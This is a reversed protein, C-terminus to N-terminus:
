GRGSVVVSSAKFVLHVASQPRLGLEETSYRTLEVTMPFGVDVTALVVDSSTSLSDVRGPLVNRASSLSPEGVALILESARISVAVNSGVVADLRPTYLSVSGVSVRDPAEVRGFLLNDISGESRGSSVAMDLVQRQSPGFGAVVGQDLTLTESALALVDSLAHSVYIMPIGYRGHIERLYMVVQNRSVPDLSAVPEDLLLVAPDAALARAIAVRQREGGSLTSPYRDLLQGIGLADSIEASTAAAAGDAVRRATYGYAVNQRVTMHPFLNGHQHVLVARRRDTPINVGAYGDFVVSGNIAIRGSTPRILGALSSLLTSKGAGSRGIVGTIGAGFKASVQLAFDDVECRIDVEVGEAATIHHENM